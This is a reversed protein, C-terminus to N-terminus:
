FPLDDDVSASLTPGSPVPASPIAPSPVTVSQVQPTVVVPAEVVPNAYKPANEAVRTGYTPAQVPAVSATPQPVGVVPAVSHYVGDNSEEKKQGFSHSEINSAIINRNLYAKGDKVTMTENPRGTVVVAKGKTFPKNESNQREILRADYSVVNFYVAVREQNVFANNALTFSLYKSGSKSIKVEADKVLNGDVIRIDM